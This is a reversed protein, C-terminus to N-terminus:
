DNLLREKVSRILELMDNLGYKIVNDTYDKPEGREFLLPIIDPYLKLTKVMARKGAMDNDYLLFLKKFRSKLINYQERTLLITESMTAVAVVEAFSLAFVDKYAKTILCYDGTAPLQNFGQLIKSNNHAFRFHKERLPFYLKFNGEGFYFAFGIDNKHWEYVPRDNMYAHSISYISFKKYAEKPVILGCCENWFEKDLRHWEKVQIKIDVKKSSESKRIEKLHEGVDIPKFMTYKESSVLRFDIAIQILTDYFTKKRTVIKAVNFCDLSYTQSWDRFQIRDNVFKFTATPYDDSRLPNCIIEDERVSVGLYYSFIEVEGIKKLLYERTIEKSNDYM